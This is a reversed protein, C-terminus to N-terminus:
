YQRYRDSTFTRQFQGLISGLVLLVDNNGRLLNSLHLFRAEVVQMRCGYHSPHKAHEIKRSTLDAGDYLGAIDLDLYFFDGGYARVQFSM